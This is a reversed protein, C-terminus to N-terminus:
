STFTAVKDLNYTLTHAPLFQNIHDVPSSDGSTLLTKSIDVRPAAKPVGTIIGRASVKFAGYDSPKEVTWDGNWVRFRLKGAPGPGETTDYGGYYKLVLTSLGFLTKMKTINIFVAAGVPGDTLSIVGGTSYMHNANFLALSPIEQIHNHRPDPDAMDNGFSSALGSDNPDECGGFWQYHPASGLHQVGTFTFLGLLNRIDSKKPPKVSGNPNDYRIPWEFPGLEFVPSM